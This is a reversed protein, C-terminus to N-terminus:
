CEKVEITKRLLGYDDIYYGLDRLIIRIEHENVNPFEDGLLLLLNDESEGYSRKRLLERIREKIGM